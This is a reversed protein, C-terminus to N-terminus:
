INKKSKSISNYTDLDELALSEIAAENGERAEAVLRNRKHKKEVAVKKDVDNQKIPLLITGDVSLGSLFAGSLGKVHINNRHESLFDAVNQLFFILTVGLRVEDCIGAYSEKDAHKEIDIREVTSVEDSISFPFYYDMHFVDEEDYFGCVTIGIKNGYFKSMEVFENEESDKTVKITDPMEIVNDLIIELDKKKFNSFGVARLYKHM